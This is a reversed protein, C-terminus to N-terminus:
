VYRIIRCFNFAVIIGFGNIRVYKMSGDMRETKYKENLRESMWGQMTCVNVNIRELFTRILQYKKKM